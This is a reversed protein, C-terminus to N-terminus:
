DQKLYLTWDSSMEIEVAHNQADEKASEVALHRHAKSEFAEVFAKVLYDTNNQAPTVVYPNHHIVLSAFVSDEYETASTDLHHIGIPDPKYGIYEVTVDHTKVVSLLTLIACQRFQERSTAPPTEITANFTINLSYTTPTSM